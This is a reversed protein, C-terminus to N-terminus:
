ITTDVCVGCVLNHTWGAYWLVKTRKLCLVMATDEDGGGRWGEVRNRFLVSTVTAASFRNGSWGSERESVCPNVCPAIFDSPNVGLDSAVDGWTGSTKKM